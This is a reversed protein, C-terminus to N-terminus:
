WSSRTLGPIYGNNAFKVICIRCLQYRKINGRPRSCNFCRTRVRIKNSDRPLKSLLNQAVSLVELAKSRTFDAADAKSVLGSQIDNFQSLADEDLSLSNTHALNNLLKRVQKVASTYKDRKAAYKKVIKKRRNNKVTSSLKPM